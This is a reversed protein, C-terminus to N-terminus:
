VFISTHFVETIFFTLNTTNILIYSRKQHEMTYFWDKVPGMVERRTLDCILENLKDVFLRCVVDPRDFWQQPDLPDNPRMDALEPCDPDMTFTIFVDPKGIERCITMNDAYGKQFYERSARFHENTMYIRGITGPLESCFM